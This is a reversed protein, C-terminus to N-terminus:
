KNSVQLKKERKSITNSNVTRFRVVNLCCPCRNIKVVEEKKVGKMCYSCYRHTNSNKWSFKPWYQCVDKCRHVNPAGSSLLFM